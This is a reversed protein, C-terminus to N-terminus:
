PTVEWVTGYGDTGGSITTGYVNGSGDLVVGGWPESGDSSGGTFSHLLIQEWTGNGVPTLEYVTGDFSSSYQGSTGYINGASDFAINGILYGIAPTGLTSFNTLVTETWQGKKGKSLEFVVGDSGTGGQDTAGYLNGASDILLNGQPAAGDAYDFNLLGEYKWTGNSQPALEYIFGYNDSGGSSVAGYLNGSADFVVPYSNVVNKANPFSYLVREEWEGSSKPVFQFVTGENATGGTPTAGYLNGASDFTLACTPNTGDKGNNNFSHLIREEWRGNNPKLQYVAGYGYAGGYYTTGYLNGASDFVLGAYPYYADGAASGFSYLVTETWGGSGNSSLEFVAGNNAAGGLQTTGYLNGSSDFILSSAPFQGDKGNFSHLITETQAFAAQAAIAVVFLAAFTLSVARRSYPV